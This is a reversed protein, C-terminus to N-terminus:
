RTVFPWATTFQNVHGHLDRLGARITIRYITQAQLAQTPQFILTRDHWAFQGKVPPYLVFAREATRQDVPRSFTVTIPGDVAAASGTPTQAVVSIDTAKSTFFLVAGTLVLLMISAASVRLSYSM